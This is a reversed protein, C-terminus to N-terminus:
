LEKLTSAYVELIPYQQCWQVPKHCQTRFSFYLFLIIFFMERVGGALLSNCVLFPLLPILCIEADSFSIALIIIITKFTGDCVWVVQPLTPTETWELLSSNWKIGWATCFHCVTNLTFQSKRNMRIFKDFQVLLMSM